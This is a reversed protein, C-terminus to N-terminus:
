KQGYGTLTEKELDFLISNGKGGPMASTSIAQIKTPPNGILLFEWERVVKPDLTLYGGETLDRITQPYTNNDDRYFKMAQHIQPLTEVAFDAHKSATPPTLLETETVFIMGGLLVVGAVVGITVLQMQTLKKRPSIPIDQEVLANVADCSHSIVIGLMVLNVAQLGYVSAAMWASEWFRDIYRLVGVALGIVSFTLFSWTPITPVQLQNRRAYEHYATTWGLFAKFRWYINWLPVLLLGAAMLASPRTKGDQIADWLKYVFSLFIILGFVRIPNVISGGMSALPDGAAIMNHWIDYLVGLGIPILITPLFYLKNMPKM